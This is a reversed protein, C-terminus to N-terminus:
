PPAPPIISQMSNTVFISNPELKIMNAIEEATLKVRPEKEDDQSKKSKKDKKEKKDKKIKTSDESKSTESIIKARKSSKEDNDDDVRERKVVIEKTERNAKEISSNETTAQGQSEKISRLLSKFSGLPALGSLLQDNPQKSLYSKVIISNSCLSQLAKQTSSQKTFLANGIASAKACTVTADDILVPIIRSKWISKPEKKLLDLSQKIYRFRRWQTAFQFELQTSAEPIRRSLPIDDPYLLKDILPEHEKCFPTLKKNAEANINLGYGALRGCIPHFKKSCNQASCEVIAGSFLQCIDCRMAFQEPKPKQLLKQAVNDEINEAGSLWYCCMKHAVCGEKTDIYIGNLRPCLTCIYKEAPIDKKKM